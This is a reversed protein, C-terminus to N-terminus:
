TTTAHKLSQGVGNWKCLGNLIWFVFLCNGHVKPLVIRFKRGSLKSEDWLSNWWILFLSRKINLTFICVEEERILIWVFKFLCLSIRRIRWVRTSMKMLAVSWRWTKWKHRLLWIILQQNTKSQFKHLKIILCIELSLLFCICVIFSMYDFIQISEDTNFDVYEYKLRCSFWGEDFWILHLM